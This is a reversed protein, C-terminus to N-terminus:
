RNAKMLVYFMGTQPNKCSQIIKASVVQGDVTQFSVNSFSSDVSGNHVSSSTITKSNVKTKLQTAIEDIARAIATKRQAQEGKFNVGAIGVGYLSNKDSPPNLVWNPESYCIGNIKPKTQVLNLNNCGAFLLFAPLIFYKLM